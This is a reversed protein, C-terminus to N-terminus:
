HRAAHKQWFPRLRKAIRAPHTVPLMHGAEKVQSISVDPVTKRIARAVARVIPQTDSGNIIQVPVELGKLAELTMRNAGEPKLIAPESARILPMMTEIDKRRKPKLGAFPEAGWMNVFMEAALAYDEAEFAAGLPGLAKTYRNYVKDGADHALVFYVPEILTLSQVIEPREVALRLAVTAGFSHGVLHVHAPPCVTMADEMAQRQIDRWKEYGTGGHGPLDPAILCYDGLRKWVPAWSKASALAAHLFVAPRGLPDGGREVHLSRTTM